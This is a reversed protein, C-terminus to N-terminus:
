RRKLRVKLRAWFIILKVKWKPLGEELWHSPKATKLKDQFTM